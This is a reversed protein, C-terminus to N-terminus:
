GVIRGGIAELDALDESLREGGRAVTELAARDNELGALRKAAVLNVLSRTEARDGALRALLTQMADLLGLGVWAASRFSTRDVLVHFADIDALIARLEAHFHDVDRRTTADRPSIPRQSPPIATM